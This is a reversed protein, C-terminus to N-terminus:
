RLRSELTRLAPSQPGLARSRAAYRQASARDGLALATLGAGAFAAASGPDVNMARQFYRKADNMMRLDFAQFGAAVLYKGSIPSLALARRYNIMALRSRGEHAALVGLRWYAEAVADPHTGSRELRDKLQVELAYAARPNSDALRTVQVDVAASDGASVFLQQALTQNGHALAVRALLESHNASTPLRQAYMQAARLDGRALAARALMGNVYPAPAVRAIATYIAVGTRLPIAAAFAHPSAVSSFIGDSGIQVAALAAVLLFVVAALM